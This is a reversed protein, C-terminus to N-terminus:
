AGWVTVPTGDQQREERYIKEAWTRGERMDFIVLRCSADSKCSIAGLSSLLTTSRIEASHKGSTPVEAAFGGAAKWHRGSNDLARGRTAGSCRGSM